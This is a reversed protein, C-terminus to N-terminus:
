CSEGCSRSDKRCFYQEVARSEEMESESSDTEGGNSEMEVDRNEM